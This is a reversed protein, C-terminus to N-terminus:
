GNTRNRDGLLLKGWFLGELLAGIIFLAIVGLMMGSFYCAIAGALLALLTMFRTLRSKM